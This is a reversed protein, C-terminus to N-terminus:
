WGGEDKALFTGGKAPKQETVSKVSVCVATKKHRDRVLALTARGSKAVIKAGRHEKEKGNGVSKHRRAGKELYQLVFVHAKKM